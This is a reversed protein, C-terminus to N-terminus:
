KDESWNFNIVYPQYDGESAEPNYGAPNQNISVAATDPASIFTQAEKIHAVTNGASTVALSTNVNRKATAM